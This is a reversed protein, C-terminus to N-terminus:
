PKKAPEVAKNGEELRAKSRNELSDKKMEVRMKEQADNKTTRCVEFDAKTKVAQVCTKFQTLIGIETEVHHVIKKKVEELRDNKEDALVATSFLFLTSLVAM